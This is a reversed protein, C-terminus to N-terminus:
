GGALKWLARAEEVLIDPREEPWFLKRGELLRVGKSNGFTSDLYAPSTKAFIDDATGWVIRTPVRSKKLEPEVGALPNAELALTYRDLWVKKDATSLLPAFYQEIAEDTPHAPDVYCLGGIGNKSRALVKDALWPGLMDDAFRGNKAMEFVPALSAVPYDTETDCNTLLLSRVRDPHRAVLWQAIAGGSDNAIVDVKKVGKTDLLEILMAVQDQPGVSKGAAVETYGLGLLDPAICRREQSLARISDRWQFSNLPFGHIFLVADGTGRDIHAIRGYRTRLFQRAATFEAATVRALPAAITEVTEFGLWSCGALVVFDRRQM